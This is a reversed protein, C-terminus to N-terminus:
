LSKEQLENQEDDRHALEQEIGEFEAQISKVAEERETLNQERVLLDIKTLFDKAEEESMTALLDKWQEEASKVKEAKLKEKLKEINEKKANVYPNGGKKNKAM